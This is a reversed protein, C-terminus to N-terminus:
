QMFLTAKFPKMFIRLRGTFAFRQAQALAFSFLSSRSKMLLSLRQCLFSHEFLCFESSSSPEFSRRLQALRRDVSIPTNFLSSAYCNFNIANFQNGSLSCILEGPALLIKVTLLFLM